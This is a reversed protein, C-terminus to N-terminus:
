HEPSEARDLHDLVFGLAKELRVNQNGHGGDTPVFTPELGNQELEKVFREAPAFLDFEDNRGVTVFIKGRLDKASSLLRHPSHRTWEAVVADNREGTMPDFPWRGPSFAAAWSPMQGAGGVSAELRLWHHVWPKARRAGPEFMWPEFDAPDPSSAGIAAFLDSRRMGFSLANFGGTSQGIVARGSRRGLGHLQRDIEPVARTAMFTAWPGTAPSDELYTSGLATSTDVGVIVAERGLRDLRLGVHEDGTLYALDTSMLGPFMLVIPYRRAASAEWSKPLWACFRRPEPSLEPADITLLRYREGKCREVTPRPRSRNAVLRIETGAKGTGTFGHGGGVLTEWFTHDIDLMVVAVADSPAGPVRVHIRPKSAFDVEGQPESRELMARVHIMDMRGAAVEAQEAPTRWSTVLVGRAPRDVVVDVELARSEPIAPRACACIGVLLAGARRV